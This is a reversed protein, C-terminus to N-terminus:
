IPETNRKANTNVAKGCLPNKQLKTTDKHYIRLFLIVLNLSILVKSIHQWISKWFSQVLICKKKNEKFIPVQALM